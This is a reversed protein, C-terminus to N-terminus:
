KVQSDKLIKKLRILQRELHVIRARQCRITSDKYKDQPKPCGSFLFNFTNEGHTPNLPGM